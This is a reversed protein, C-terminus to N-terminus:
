MKRSDVLGEDGQRPRDGAPHCNVCRPNTLVKGLETFIAASRAGTDDISRFSDPSALTNSATQSAAYGTLMSLSLATASAFVWLRTESKM